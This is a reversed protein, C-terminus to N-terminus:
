SVEAPKKFYTSMMCYLVNCINSLNDENDELDGNYVRISFDLLATFVSHM